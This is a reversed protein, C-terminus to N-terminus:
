VEPSWTEENESFKAQSLVPGVLRGLLEYKWEPLEEDGEVQDGVLAENLLNEVSPLTKRVFDHVVKRFNPYCRADLSLALEVTDNIELTAYHNTL